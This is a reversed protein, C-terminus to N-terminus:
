RCYLREDRHAENAGLPERAVAAPTGRDGSAAAASLAKTASQAARLDLQGVYCRATAAGRAFIILTPTLNPPSGDLWGPQLYVVQRGESRETDGPSEDDRYPPIRLADCGLRRSLDVLTRWEPMEASCFGCNASTYLLAFCRATTVTPGYSLGDALYGSPIATDLPFWIQAKPLMEAERWLHGRAYILAADAALLCALAASLAVSSPRRM